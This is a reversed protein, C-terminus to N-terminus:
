NGLESFLLPEEFVEELAAGSKELRVTSCSCRGPERANEQLDDKFAPLFAQFVMEGM